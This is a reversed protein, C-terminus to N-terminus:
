DVKTWVVDTPEVTSILLVGCGKGVLPLPTSKEYERPTGARRVASGAGLRSHVSPAADTPGPSCGTEVMRPAREGEYLGVDGM